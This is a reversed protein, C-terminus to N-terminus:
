FNVGVVRFLGKAYADEGGLCLAPDIVVMKATNLKMVVRFM